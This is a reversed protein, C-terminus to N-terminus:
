LFEVTSRASGSHTTIWTTSETVIADADEALIFTDGTSSDAITTLEIKM